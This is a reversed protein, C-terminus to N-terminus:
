ATAQQTISQCAVASPGGAFALARDQGGDLPSQGLEATGVFAQEGHRHLMSGLCVVLGLVLRDHRLVDPPSNQGVGRVDGL